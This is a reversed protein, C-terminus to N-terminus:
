LIPRYKISVECDYGLIHPPTTDLQGWSQCRHQRKNDKNDCLITLCNAYYKRLHRSGLNRLSPQLTQVSELADKFLSTINFVTCQTSGDSITMQIPRRLRFISSLALNLSTTSSMHHDLVHFHSTELSSLGKSWTLGSVLPTGCHLLEGVQWVRCRCLM